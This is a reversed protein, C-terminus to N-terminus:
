LRTYPVAIPKPKPLANQDVEYQFLRDVIDDIDEQDTATTIPEPRSAAILGSAKFIWPRLTFELKTAVYRELEDASQLGKRLRREASSVLRDQISQDYIYSTSVM